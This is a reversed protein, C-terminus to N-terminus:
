EYLTCIGMLFVILLISINFLPIVSAVCILFFEKKKNNRRYQIIGFVQLALM